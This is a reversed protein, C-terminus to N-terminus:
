QTRGTRVRFLTYEDITQQTVAVTKAGPLVRYCDMCIRGEPPVIAATHPRCYIVRGCACLCRIDDAFNSRPGCVAVTRDPATV